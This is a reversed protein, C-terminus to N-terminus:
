PTGVPSATSFGSKNRAADSPAPGQDGKPPSAQGRPVTIQATNAFRVTLKESSLEDKPYLAYMYQPAGYATLSDDANAVASCLCDTGGAAIPLAQVRKAKDWLSVNSATPTSTQVAYANPGFPLASPVQTKGFGYAIDQADETQYSFDLRLYDGVDQLQWINVTLAPNTGGKPVPLLGSALAGASSTKPTMSPLDTIKKGTDINADVDTLPKFTFSVRRNKARNQEIPSGGSTKNPVLPRTMGYGKAQMTIGSAALKPELAKVVAQARRESLGQNYEKTGQDDTHGEITVSQGRAATALKQAASALVKQARDDLRDSDLAFLVDAGLSLTTEDKKKQVSAENVSSVASDLPVVRKFKAGSGYTASLSNPGSGLRFDDLPGPSYRQGISVPVQPFFTDGDGLAVDVKASAPAPFDVFFLASKAPATPTLANRSDGPSVAYSCVCNVKHAADTVEGLETIDGPASTDLAPSDSARQLPEYLQQDAEDILRVWPRRNGRQAEAVGVERTISPANVPPLVAAILRANKGDSDLSLIQVKARAEAGQTPQRVTQEAVPAPLYNARWYGDADVVAPAQSSPVATAAGDSQSSGSNEGGGEGTCASLLLIAVVPLVLIRLRKM